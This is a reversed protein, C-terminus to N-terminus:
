GPSTVFALLETLLDSQRMLSSASQHTAALWPDWLCPSVLESLASLDVTAQPDSLRPLANWQVWLRTAVERLAPPWDAMWKDMFAHLKEAHVGDDQRYIQWVHPRSAWLAQVASDEGRVFNLDSSALLADFQPQPLPPLAHMRVGPWTEGGAQLRQVQQTARGPTLLVLWDSPPGGPHALARRSLSLQALLAQVPSHDYCFLTIVRQGPLWDVGCAKLAQQRAADSANLTQNRSVAEPERLLGGTKPTFGPYFFRKKLGAGKGSFVPSALGHSREVYDQASLYELNVWRPPAPRQMLALFAEPLECGFAEIVVEAPTADGPWSAQPAPWARVEIGPHGLGDAQVEPAMWRLARDDDVWLRVLHGRAALGRALRWCVGIDGHNDIVKCFLDWRM